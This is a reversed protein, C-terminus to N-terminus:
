SFLDFLSSLPSFHSSQTTPLTTRRYCPNNPTTRSRPSNVSLHLLPLHCNLLPRRTRCYPSCLPRSLPHASSSVPSQLGAGHGNFKPPPPSLRLQVSVSLQDAHCFVNDVSSEIVECKARRKCTYICAILLTSTITLLYYLLYMVPTTYFTSRRTTQEM